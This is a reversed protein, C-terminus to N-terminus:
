KIRLYLYNFWIKMMKKKNYCKIIIKNNELANKVYKNMEIYVFIFSTQNKYPIRVYIAIRKCKM